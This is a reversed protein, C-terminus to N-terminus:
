EDYVFAMRRATPALMVGEDETAGELATVDDADERPEDGEDTGTNAATDEGSEVVSVEDEAVADEADVVTSEAGDISGDEPAAEPSATERFMGKGVEYLTQLNEVVTASDTFDDGYDVLGDLNALAPNARWLQRLALRRLRDPVADSMFGKVDDGAKIDEPRPLGLDALIEEDTRLDEEGAEAALPAAGPAAEQAEGAADALETTAATQKRRSWRSLFGDEESM